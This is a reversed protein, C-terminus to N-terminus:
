VDASLPFSHWDRKWTEMRSPWLSRFLGEFARLKVGAGDLTGEDDYREMQKRLQVGRERILITDGAATAGSGQVRVCRWKRIMLEMVRRLYPHYPKLVALELRQIRSSGGSLIAHFIAGALSEDVAINILMDRNLDHDPPMENASSREQLGWGPRRQSCDFELSLDRLQTIAGLARYIKLEDCNGKSRPVRLRLDSLKTCHKRIMDIQEPTIRFPEPPRLTIFPFLALKRLSSGHHDLLAQFSREAFLGSLHLSQLPAINLLFASGPGDMQQSPANIDGEMSLLDLVLTKLASFQCQSARALTDLELRWLHLTQLASFDIHREWQLFRNLRAPQLSLKRLRGRPYSHGPKDLFFGQWPPLPRTIDFHHWPDGAIHLEGVHISELNPALGTALAMAAPAHYDVRANDIWTCDPIVVSRLNPSTALKYEYEDICRPSNVDVILSKLGFSFLHLECGPICQHLADLLPPLLRGGVHILEKLGTLKRLLRSLSAWEKNVSQSTVMRSPSPSDYISQHGILFKHQEPVCTLDDFKEGRCICEEVFDMQGNDEDERQLWGELTLERVSTFSSTAQLISDWCAIEGELQKRSVIQLYITSFRYTNAAVCCRKSALAFRYLSPKWESALCHAILDLAEM